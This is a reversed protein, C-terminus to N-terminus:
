NNRNNSRRPKRRTRESSNRNSRRKNKSENSNKKGDDKEEGTPNNILKDEEVANNVNKDQPVLPKTTISKLPTWGTVFGQIIIGAINSIIWYLALGSPFSITFFGFMVPMMWLMMQNTSQQKPDASPITTMKQMMWMSVGVLIPLLPTRDPQALDLWFFERNIPIIENVKPMWYYLYGSLDILKEPTSPLTKILAQYLGIWIPFQIFMPGLCGLPNVGHEKYLRMTEQSIKQRDKGHKQQLEKLKPQLLTMERIQRSQKVTLPIMIGRIIITFVIISIGFNNFFISYLIVLSNIMPEIIITNWIEAILQL